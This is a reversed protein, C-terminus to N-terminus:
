GLLQAYAGEGKRDVSAFNEPFMGKFVNPLIAASCVYEDPLGNYKLVCGNDIIYVIHTKKHGHLWIFVKSEPARANLLFFENGKIIVINKSFIYIEMPEIGETGHNTRCMFVGDSAAIVFRKLYPENSHGIYVNNYEDTKIKLLCRDAQIRRQCEDLLNPDIVKM